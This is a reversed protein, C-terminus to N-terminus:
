EIGRFPPALKTKVFAVLRDRNADRYAAYESALENDPLLLFIAEDTYGDDRAEALLDWFASHADPNELRLREFETLTVRVREREADLRSGEDRDLYAIAGAYRVWLPRSVDDDDAPRLPDPDVIHVVPGAETQEIWPKDIRIRRYPMGSTSRLTVWGMEYLPDSLVSFIAAEWAAPMDGVNREADSLYRWAARDWPGAAVAERLIRRSTEFEGLAYYADAKSRLIASSQPCQASAQEYYPLSARFEQEGFLREAEDWAQKAAESCYVAQEPYLDSGYLTRLTDRAFAAEDSERDAEIVHEMAEAAAEYDGRQLALLGDRRLDAADPQTRAASCGGSLAFALALM